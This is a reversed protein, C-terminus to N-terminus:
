QDYVKVALSPNKYLDKELGKDYIIRTALKSIEDDTKTNVVKGTEVLRNLLTSKGEVDKVTKDFKFVPTKVGDKRFEMMTEFGKKFDEPAEMGNKEFWTLYSNVAKRHKTM